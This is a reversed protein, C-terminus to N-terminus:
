HELTSSSLLLASLSVFVSDSLNTPDQNLAVRPACPSPALHCLFTPPPRRAWFSGGMGVKRRSDPSALVYICSSTSPFPSFCFRLRKVFSPLSPSSFLRPHLSKKAADWAGSGAALAGCSAVTQRLTRSM